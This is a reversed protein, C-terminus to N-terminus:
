GRAILVVRRNHEHLALWQSTGGEPMILQPKRMTAAIFSNNKITTDLFHHIKATFIQVHQPERGALSV